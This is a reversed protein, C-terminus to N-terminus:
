MLGRSEVSNPSRAKEWEPGRPHANRGVPSRMRRVYVGHPAVSRVVDNSSNLWKVISGACRRALELRLSLMGCLPACM